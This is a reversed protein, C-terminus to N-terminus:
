TDILRKEDMSVGRLGCVIDWYGGVSDVIKLVFSKCSLETREPMYLKPDDGFIQVLQAWQKRSLLLRVVRWGLRRGAVLAGILLLLKDGNGKYIACMYDIRKLLEEETYM